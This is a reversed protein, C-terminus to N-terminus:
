DGAVRIEHVAAVAIEAEVDEIGTAEPFSLRWPGPPLPGVTWHPGRDDEGLRWSEVRVEGGRLFYTPGPDEGPGRLRLWGGAQLDVVREEFGGPEVVVSVPRLVWPNGPDQTEPDAGPTFELVGATATFELGDDDAEDTRADFLAWTTVGCFPVRDAPLPRGTPDRFRLRVRGTSGPAPTLEVRVKLRQGPVLDVEVPHAAAYGLALVEVRSFGAPFAVGPLVDAPFDRPDFGIAAGDGAASDRDSRRLRVPVRIPDGTEGDRLDFELVPLRSLAIRVENQGARAEAEAPGGHEDDAPLARLLVRGEGLDELRFRGGPDTLTETTAVWPEGPAAGPDQSAEVVAFPVPVKGEEDLVIGEVTM